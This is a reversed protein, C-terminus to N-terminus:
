WPPSQPPPPAPEASKLVPPGFRVGPPTAAGFVVQASVTGQIVVFATALMVPICRAM